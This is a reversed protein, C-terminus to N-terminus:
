TLADGTSSLIRDQVTFNSSSFYFFHWNPQPIEIIEGKATTPLLRLVHESGTSFYHLLYSKLEASHIQNTREYHNTWTTQLLYDEV